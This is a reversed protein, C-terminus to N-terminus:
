SRAEKPESHVPLGASRYAIMGGTLNMVRTFGLRALSAAVRGSRAGSRCILVVEQDRDWGRAAQEVTGLPVCEVGCIAGLDGVLEDPERVDVLRATSRRHLESPALEIVPNARRM